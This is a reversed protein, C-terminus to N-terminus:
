QQDPPLLFQRPKYKFGFVVSEVKFYRVETFFTDTVGKPFSPNYADYTVKTHTAESAMGSIDEMASKLSSVSIKIRYTCTIGGNNESSLIEIDQKSIPVNVFTGCYIDSPFWESSSIKSKDVGTVFAIVFPEDIMDLVVEPHLGAYCMYREGYIRDQTFSPGSCNVYFIDDENKTDHILSGCEGDAPSNYTITETMTGCKNGHQDYCGYTDVVTGSPFHTTTTQKLFYEEIRPSSYTYYEPTYSTDCGVLYKGSYGEQSGCCGSGSYSVSYNYNNQSASITTIDKLETYSTSEISADKLVYIAYDGNTVSCIDNIVNKLEGYILSKSLKVDTFSDDNIKYGSISSLLDNRATYASDKKSPNPMMLQRYVGISGTFGGTRYKNMFNRRLIACGPFPPVFGSPFIQNGLGLIAMREKIFELTDIISEADLIKGDPKGWSINKKEDPIVQFYAEDHKIKFELIKQNNSM